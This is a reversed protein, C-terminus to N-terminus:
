PLLDKATTEAPLRRKPKVNRPIETRLGQSISETADLFGRDILSILWRGNASELFNVYEELEEDSAPQYAFLYHVIRANRMISRYRSKVAGLARDLETASYRMEKPLVPGIAQAVTHVLAITAEVEMDCTGLLEYLRHILVLRPQSPPSARLGDAFAVLEERADPSFARRELSALKTTVPSRLWRVVEPLRGPSYNKRVQGGIAAYFAEPQFWRTLVRQLTPLEIEALRGKDLFAPLRTGRTYNALSSRLGSSDLLIEVFDSQGVPAPDPERVPAPAPAPTPAALAPAPDSVPAVAALPEAPAPVPIAVPAPTPSPVERVTVPAQEVERITVPKPKSQAAPPPKPAAAEGAPATPGRDPELFECSAFGLRRTQGARSIACWTIDDGFLVLGIIVADGKALTVKVEATESMSAYVPLKESSVVARAGAAVTQAQATAAALLALCLGQSIAPKHM